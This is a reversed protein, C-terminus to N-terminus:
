TRAGDTIEEGLEQKQYSVLFMKLFKSDMTVDHDEPLNQNKTKSVYESV